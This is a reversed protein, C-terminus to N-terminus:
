ARIFRTKGLSAIVDAIEPENLLASEVAARQQEVALEAAELKHIEELVARTLAAKQMKLNNPLHGKDGVCVALALRTEAIVKVVKALSQAM